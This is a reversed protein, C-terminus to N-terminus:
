CMCMGNGIIVGVIVPVVVFFGKYGFVNEALIM